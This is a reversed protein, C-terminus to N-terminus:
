VMVGPKVKPTKDKANAGVEEACGSDIWKQAIEPTFEVVEGKSGLKNRSELVRVKIKKTEDAM